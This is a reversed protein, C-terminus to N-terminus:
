YNYLQKFVSFFTSWYVGLFHDYNTRYLLPARRRYAFYCNRMVEYVLM